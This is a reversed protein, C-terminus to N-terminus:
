QKNMCLTFLSETSRVKDGYHPPQPHALFQSPAASPCSIQVPWLPIGHRVVDHDVIFNAASPEGLTVKATPSAPCCTQKHSTTLLQGQMVQPKKILNQKEKSKLSDKDEGM